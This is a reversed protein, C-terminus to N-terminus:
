ADIMRNFPLVSCPSRFCYFDLIRYTCQCSACQLVQAVFEYVRSEQQELRRGEREGYWASNERAEPIDPFELIGDKIFAFDPAM